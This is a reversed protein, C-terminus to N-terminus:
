RRLIQQAEKFKRQYYAIDETNANNSELLLGGFIQKLAKFEKEVEEKVEKMEIPTM